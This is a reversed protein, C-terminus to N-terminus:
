QLIEVNKFRKIYRLMNSRWTKVHGLNQSSVELYPGAAPCGQFSQVELDRNFLADGFAYHEIKDHKDADGKTDFFIRCSYTTVIESM